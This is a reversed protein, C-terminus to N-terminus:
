RGEYNEKYYIRFDRSVVFRLWDTNKIYWRITEELAKEFKYLTKFNLEKQMKSVSLAYRIDHAPRDRVFDILRRLDREGTIKEYIKIVNEVLAVNEMENGSGINYVDGSRGQFLVDRIGRINDKVYIWDRKQKGNGYIPIKKKEMLRMIILPIFKEPYQNPGFNNSSRTIVVDVGFTKYYSLAILDGSAKSAAYPSTPNVPFEESAIGEVIPGYVEDTSVQVLRLSFERAVELLSITGEINTKYFPIPDIISRDVHTEAAFNVIAEIGYRKVTNRVLTTDRIDGKLFIYNEDKEVEKLNLLNGSYTLKDFCVVFHGESLLLKVFHSGIFGAGGTVLVRSM